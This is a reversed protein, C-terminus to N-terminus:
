AAPPRGVKRITMVVVVRLECQTRQATAARCRSTRPLALQKGSSRCRVTGGARPRVTRGAGDAGHWSRIRSPYVHRASGWAGCAPWWLGDSARGVRRRKRKKDERHIEAKTESKERNRRSIFVSLVCSSTDKEKPTKRDEKKRKARKSSM